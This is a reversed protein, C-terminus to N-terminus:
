GNGLGLIGKIEEVTVAADIQSQMVAYKDRIAQRATEADTLSKGPIQLSIIEDYPRFEEARKARRMDHAMGRAKDVNHVIAAGSKEWANRFTRDTPIVAVDVVDYPTADPVATIVEELTAGPAPIIVAAGGEPTSYIIRTNEM